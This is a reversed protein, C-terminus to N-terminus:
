SARLIMVVALGGLFALVIRRFTEVPLRSAWADGLRMGLLAPLVALLGLPLHEARLLGAWAFSATATAGFLSMICGLASLYVPRPLHLSVVYAVFVPGPASTLGGVVGSALGMSFGVPVARRPPTRLRPNALSTAVFCLIFVGLVASLTAPDLGAAFAAGLPVTLTPGLMLPWAAALGPRLGAGQRIQQINTFLIVIANLALATGLPLVFPILTVAVVPLGFGSAGKVLGALLYIALAAGVEAWGIGGFIGAM